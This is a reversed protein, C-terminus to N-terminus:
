FNFRGGFQLSRSGQTPSYPPGFSTIYGFTGGAVTTNPNNLWPHNFVNFAEFRIQFESTRYVHISRFLSTNFISVGPGRFSNRGTNPLTPGVNSPNGVVTNPLETPNSFAAPAFWPNGGSVGTTGPSRNHGGLQQYSTVNAYTTGFGPAMNGILNSSASVGFPFGSYHSFQGNLQWGGIIQGTLGQNIYKQDYGIPLHYVGWVQINQKQDYGASGKNLGFMSPYNFKTGEAGSGAGNDEYDIAHSYTWTAGLSANKGGNYTLQSQLANYTSSFLPESMTIGGTNYCIYGGTTTANCHMQNIITNAQYSCAGSLGSLPNYQGNPM